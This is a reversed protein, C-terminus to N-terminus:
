RSFHKDTCQGLFQRSSPEKGLAVHRNQPQWGPLQGAAVRVARIGAAQAPALSSSCTVIGM